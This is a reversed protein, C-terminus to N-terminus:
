QAMGGEPRASLARVVHGLTFDDGVNGPFVVYHIGPWRTEPGLEWVPVGPAIQGPVFAEKVGLGARAIEVSTPGGCPPGSCDLVGNGGASGGRRPTRRYAHPTATTMVAETRATAPTHRHPLGAGAGMGNGTEITTSGAAIMRSSGWPM